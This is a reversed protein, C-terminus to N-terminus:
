VLIGGGAVSEGVDVDIAIAHNLMVPYAEAALVTVIGQDGLKQEAGKMSPVFRM